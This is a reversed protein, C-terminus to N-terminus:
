NKKTKQCTTDILFWLSNGQILLDNTNNRVEFIRYAYFRSYGLPETIIKITDKYVPRQNIIIDWKYLLWAVNNKNYYDLGIGADDSNLLAIEEFYRMLNIINLQFRNDCDYYHIFYEREYKM